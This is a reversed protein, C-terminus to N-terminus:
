FSARSPGLARLGVFGALAVVGAVLRLCGLSLSEAIKELFGARCALHRAGVALRWRGIWTSARRRWLWSRPPALGREALQWDVKSGGVM